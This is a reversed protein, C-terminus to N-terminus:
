NAAVVRAVAAEQEGSNKNVKNYVQVVVVQGIFQGPSFPKGNLGLATLLQGLGINKDKGTMLAGSSDLDLWVIHSLVRGDLEDDGSNVIVFRVRLIPRNEAGIVTPTIDDINVMYEGPPIVSRTDEFSEEITQSMFTDPNFM